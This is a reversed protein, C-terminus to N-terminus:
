IMLSIKKKMQLVKETVESEKPSSRVLEPNEDIWNSIKQFKEVNREYHYRPVLYTHSVKGSGITSSMYFIGDIRLDDRVKGPTSFLKSINIMVFSHAANFM